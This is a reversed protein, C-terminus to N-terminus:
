DHNFAHLGSRILVEAERTSEFGHTQVVAFQISEAKESHCQTCVVNLLILYPITLVLAGESFAPDEKYLSLLAQTADM